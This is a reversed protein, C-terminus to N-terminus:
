PPSGYDFPVGVWRCFEWPLQDGQFAYRERMVKIIIILKRKLKGGTGTITSKWYMDYKICTGLNYNFYREIFKCLCYYKETKCLQITKKIKQKRPINNYLKKKRIKRRCVRANLEMDIDLLLLINLSKIWTFSLLEM